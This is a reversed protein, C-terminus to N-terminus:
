QIKNHIFDNLQQLNFPWGLTNGQEDEIVPIADGYLDVLNQEHIIDVKRYLTNTQKLIRVANDCLHCGDTFYLLLHKDAM